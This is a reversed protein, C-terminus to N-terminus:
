AAEEEDRRKRLFSIVDMGDTVDPMSGIIQKTTPLQSQPPLSVIEDVEIEFPHPCDGRYKMKGHVDVVTDLYRGIDPYVTRPYICRIKVPGAVPYIHFTPPDLHVNVQEVKGRFSGPSRFVNGLLKKVKAEFDHQLSVSRDSTTFRITAIHRRYGASLGQMMQLTHTDIGDPENGDNLLDVQHAFRAVVAPGMDEQGAEPVAQLKLRAPSAYSLEVVRYITTPKGDDVIEKEVALLTERLHQLFQHLEDLRIAGGDAPAGELEVELLRRNDSTM